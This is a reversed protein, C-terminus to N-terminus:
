VVLRECERGGCRSGIQDDGAIGIEEGKSVTRADRDDVRDLGDGADAALNTPVGCCWPM